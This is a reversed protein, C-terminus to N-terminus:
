IYKFTFGKYQKRDSTCVRSIGGNLLKIGFLEESQRELDSCSKFIGLSQGNKFIEVKKCNLKSVKKNGKLGGKLGEKKPDYECWGLKTGRKLYNVVAPRGLKFRKMLDTTTEDKRKNNWYDCVEKVINKNAFEACGTWNINSLDYLNALESKLISNKIWEMNSERCDLEIYHKIGNQLAIERKYKDNAQEEKLVKGGLTIFGEKYHQLGNAEIICNNDEIYFDYRKPKIWDPSYEIEFDINLQEM